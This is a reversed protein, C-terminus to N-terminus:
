KRCGQATLPNSADEPDAGPNMNVGRMVVVLADNAVFSRPRPDESTLIEVVVESLYSQQKLWDLSSDLTYDLNVWLLGDKPLHRSAEDLTLQQGRRNGTLQFISCRADTNNM